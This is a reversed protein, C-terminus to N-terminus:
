EAIEGVADTKVLHLQYGTTNNSSLGVMMFGYDKTQIVNGILEYASGKYTKTWEEQGEENVKVLYFVKEGSSAISSGFLVYGKRTQDLDIFPAISYGIQNSQRGLLRDPQVKEGTKNIKLYRIYSSGQRYKSDVIVYTSDSAPIITNFPSWHSGSYEILNNTSLVENLQIMVTRGNSKRYGSIIFDGNRMEKVSTPIIGSFHPFWWEAAGFKDVKLLFMREVDITQKIYGTIIFGEDRTLSVDLANIKQIAGLQSFVSEYNNYTDEIINGEIDILMFFMNHEEEGVVAFSMMDAAEVIAHAKGSKTSDNVRNYERGWVDLYLVLITSDPATTAVLYTSDETQVISNKFNYGVPISQSDFTQYTRKPIDDIWDRVEQEGEQLLDCSVLTILLLLSIVVLKNLM